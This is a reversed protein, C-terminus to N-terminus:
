QMVCTGTIGSSDPVCVPNQNGSPCPSGCNGYGCNGSELAAQACTLAAVQPSTTDAAAPCGCSDTYAPICTTPEKTPDCEQAAVLANVYKARLIGCDIPAPSVTTACQSVDASLALHSECKGGNCAPVLCSSALCSHKVPIDGGPCDSPPTGTSCWSPGPARAWPLLCPDRRVDTLSAGVPWWCEFGARYDLVLVCDADTTCDAVITSAPRGDGIIADPDPFAVADAGADPSISTIADPGSGRSADGQGVSVGHTGSCAALLCAVSLAVDFVKTM